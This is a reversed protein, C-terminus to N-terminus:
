KKKRLGILLKGLAEHRSAEDPQNERRLLEGLLAQHNPLDPRIEAARQAAKLAQPINGVNYQTAALLFWDTAQQRLVVLRELHPVAQSFQRLALHSDSLAFRLKVETDPFIPQGSELAHEALRISAQPDRRLYTQALAALTEPDQIGSQVLRALITNSRELYASSLQPQATKKSLALYAMGLCRERETEPLHSLEQIPELSVLQDNTRPKSEGSHVGIRHHHAAVHPIDTPSSPM